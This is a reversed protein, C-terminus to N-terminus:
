QQTIATQCSYASVVTFRLSFIALGFLAFLGVTFGFVAASVALIM